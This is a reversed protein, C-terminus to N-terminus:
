ICRAQATTPAPVASLVRLPLHHPRGTSGTSFPPLTEPAWTSTTLQLFGGGHVSVVIGWGRRAPPWGRILPRSSTIDFGSSILFVVWDLRDGRGLHLWRGLLSLWELFYPREHDDPDARQGLLATCDPFYVPRCAILRPTQVPTGARGFPAAAAHVAGTRAERAGAPSRPGALASRGRGRRHRSGITKKVGRSRHSFVLRAIAEAAVWGTGTAVPVRAQEQVRHSRAMRFRQSGSDEACPTTWVTIAADDSSLARWSPASNSPTPQRESADRICMTPCNPRYSSQERIWGPAEFPLEAMLPDVSQAVHGAGYLWLAARNGEIPELLAATRM